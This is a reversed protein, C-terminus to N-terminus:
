TIGKPAPYPTWNLPIAAKLDTSGAKFNLAELFDLDKDLAYRIEYQM